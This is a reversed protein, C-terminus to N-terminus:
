KIWAFRSRGAALWDHTFTTDAAPVTRTYNFWEGVTVGTMVYDAFGAASYQPRAEDPSIDTGVIEFGRYLKPQVTTTAVEDIDQVGTTDFYNPQIYPDISPNDIFQGGNFNFDEAEFTLNNTTFTDFMSSLTGSRGNNDAVHVLAYYFRNTELLNTYGIGWPITANTVQLYSSVDRTNLTLQIANRAVGNPGPDLQFGVGANVAVFASGNAPQLGTLGFSPPLTWVANSIVATYGNISEDYALDGSQENFGWGGVIGPQAAVVASMSLTMSNSITEGSLATTWVQFEDIMGKYFNAARGWTSGNYTNAGIYGWKIPIATTSATKSEVQQGNIYLSLTNGSRVLGIHTWVNYGVNYTMGYIAGSGTSTRIDAAIIGNTELIQIRQTSSVANSFRFLYQGPSNNEMFFWGCITFDGINLNTVAPTINVYSNTGNYQM